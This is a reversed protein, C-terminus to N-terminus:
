RVRLLCTVCHTVHGCGRSVPYKANMHRGVAFEFGHIFLDAELLFLDNRNTSLSLRVIESSYFVLVDLDDFWFNLEHLQEWPKM